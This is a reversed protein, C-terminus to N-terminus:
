GTSTPTSRRRDTRLDYAEVDRPASKSTASRGRSITTGTSSRHPACCGAPTSSRPIPTQAAAASAMTAAVLSLLVALGASRRITMRYRPQPLAARGITRGLQTLEPRVIFEPCITRDYEYPGGTEADTWPFGRCVAPYYRRTMFPASTPRSSSAAGAGCGRGGSVGARATSCTRGTRGVSSPPRRRSQAHRRVRLLRLRAPLSLMAIAPHSM